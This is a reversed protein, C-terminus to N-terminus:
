AGEGGGAEKVGAGPRFSPLYAFTHSSYALLKAQSHCSFLLKPNESAFPYGFYETLELLVHGWM